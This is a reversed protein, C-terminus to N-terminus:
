MASAFLTIADKVAMLAILIVHAHKFISYRDILYTYFTSVTVVPLLLAIVILSAILHAVHQFANCFHMRANHFM